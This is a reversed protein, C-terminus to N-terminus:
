MKTVRVAKVIEVRWLGLSACCTHFAVMEQFVGKELTCYPSLLLQSTDMPSQVLGGAMCSAGVAKHLKRPHRPPARPQGRKKLATLRGKEGKGAAGWSQTFLGGGGRVARRLRLLTGARGEVRRRKQARRAPLVTGRTTVLWMGKKQTGVIHLLHTAVV